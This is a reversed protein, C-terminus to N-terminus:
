KLVEAAQTLSKKLDNLMQHEPELEFRLDQVGTSELYKVAWEISSSLIKNAATLKKVHERLNGIEMARGDSPNTLHEIEECLELITALFWDKSAETPEHYRIIEARAKIEDINTMGM